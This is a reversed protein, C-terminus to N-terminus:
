SQPNFNESFDIKDSRFSRLYRDLVLYFKGTKSIVPSSIISQDISFTGLLRTSKSFIYLSQSIESFQYINNQEDIAPSSINNYGLGPIRWWLKGDPELITLYNDNLSLFIFGRQDIAPTVTNGSQSEEVVPITWKKTGDPNFAYASDAVLYITGESDIVPNIRDMELTTLCKWNLNGNNDLSYFYKDSCAFYINGDYDIAPTSNIKGDTEFKWKISGDPNIAYFGGLRSGLYIMGDKDIVPTSYYAGIEISWKIRGFEPGKFESQGTHRADHQFMPWPHGIPENRKDDDNAPTQKCCFITVLLLVLHIIKNLLMYCDKMQQHM